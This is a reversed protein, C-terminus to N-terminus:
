DSVARFMKGLLEIRDKVAEKTNGRGVLTEYMFEDALLEQTRKIIENQSKVMRDRTTPNAKIGLMVADSLPVSRQGTLSAHAAPLKFLMDGYIAMATALTSLYETEMAQCEDDTADTHDKMCQDLTQKMGGKFRALDSLAFYRLVIECDYMTAYLRHRELKRSVTYPETEEKPPIDWADTFAHSRAIRILMDNFRSAYICNRIEQANLQQGGTNLREFVYQRLRFGAEENQESEALIIVAAVSRRQLGAQIRPPLDRFDRGNLEAWVTLGRLKFENNFFSRISTLRQQGDMVEYQAYEREFLFIPPIPVNMLLSEILQSKKKDDWRFRRQYKPSIDLVTRNRVMDLLNPVLFDNRQIVIRAQGNDYKEILASEDSVGEPELSEQEDLEEALREDERLEGEVASGAQVDENTM